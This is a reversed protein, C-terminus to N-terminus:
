AVPLLEPQISPEPKWFLIAWQKGGDMDPDCMQRNFPKAYLSGVKWGKARYEIGAGGPDDTRILITM